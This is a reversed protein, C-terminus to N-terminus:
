VMMPELASTKRNASLWKQAQIQDGQLEGIWAEELCAYVKVRVRVRVLWAAEELCVYVKVEVRVRVRVM